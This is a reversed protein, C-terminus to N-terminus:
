PIEVFSRFLIIPFDAVTSSIRRFCPPRRAMQKLIALLTFNLSNKAIRMMAFMTRTAMSASVCAETALYGSSMCYWSVTAAKSVASCKKMVANRMSIMMRMIPQGVFIQSSLQNTMSLKMTAKPIRSAHIRVGKSETCIKEEKWAKRMNRMRRATRAKRTSRMKRVTFGNRTIASLRPEAKYLTKDINTMMKIMVHDMDMTKVLTIQLKGSSSWPSPSAFYKGWTSKLLTAELMTVKLMIKRRPMSHAGSIMSGM